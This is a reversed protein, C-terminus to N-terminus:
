VVGPDGTLRRFVFDHQNSRCKYGIGSVLPVDMFLWCWTVVTGSKDRVRVESAKSRHVPTVCPGDPRGAVRPVM